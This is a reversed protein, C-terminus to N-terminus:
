GDATEGINKARARADAAASRKDIVGFFRPGSWHAGTIERAIKTLSRYTRGQFEFGDDTVCVSHTRGRWERILRAGPRIKSLPSTSISGKASLENALAKLRRQTVKSLGGQALEQVRYALARMMIDRSLRPPDSRFLRRWELRLGGLSLGALASLREELEFKSHAKGPGPSGPLASFTDFAIGRHTGTQLDQAENTM